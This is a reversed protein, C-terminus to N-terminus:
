FNIRFIDSHGGRNVPSPKALDNEPVYPTAKIPEYRKTAYSVDSIKMNINEEM